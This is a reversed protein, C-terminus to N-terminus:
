WLTDEYDLVRSIIYLLSRWKLIVHQRSDYMKGYSFVRIVYQPLYFDAVRVGKFEAM